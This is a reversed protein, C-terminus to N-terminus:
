LLTYSICYLNYKVGLNIKVAEDDTIKGHIIEKGIEIHSVTLVLIVNKSWGWNILSTKLSMECTKM